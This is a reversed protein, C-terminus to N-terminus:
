ADEGISGDNGQLELVRQQASAADFHDELRKLKGREFEFIFGIPTPTATEKQAVHAAIENTMVVVENGEAIVRMSDIIVRKDYRRMVSFFNEWFEDFGAFGKYEGAFPLIAPDGPVVLVFDEALYQQCHIACDREHEAYNELIKRAILKPFYVLDEPYVSTPETSLTDALTEITDCDLAGGSEAKAILRTTYGSEKALEPQTWGRRNRHHRVLEGNCPVSREAPRESWPM